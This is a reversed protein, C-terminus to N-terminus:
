SFRSFNVFASERGCRKARDDGPVGIEQNAYKQLALRSIPTGPPLAVRSPLGGWAPASFYTKERMNM